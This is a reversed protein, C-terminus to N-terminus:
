PQSVRHWGASSESIFGLLSLSALGIQAESHTLGAEACISRLDAGQFGIVDYVRTELAGLGAAGLEVEFATGGLLEVVDDASTVLTAKANRILQHCGDAGATNIPGPVAGVPRNLDIARNATSVAGSRPNAEVVVTALGMAAILRNRQLFRWKTPEAGPPMESLLAGRDRLLAFLDSNGSPYLRDLGGAMMAVTSGGAALAARHSTADIGYAGGSVISYGREVLPTILTECASEGYTSSIRSGVFALSRGLSRLMSSDGMGWLGRPAHQELDQFGVPWDQHDTSVFWAQKEAMANCGAKVRALNLRPSWRERADLAAKEFRGFREEGSIGQEALLNKYREPSTQALELSLARAQGFASILFGAFADGPECIFSWSIAAFFEEAQEGSDVLQLSDISELLESQTIRLDIAKVM